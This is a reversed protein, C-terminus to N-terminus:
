DLLQHLHDDITEHMHWAGGGHTCAAQLQNNLTRLTLLEQLVDKGNIHLPVDSNLGLRGKIEPEDEIACCVCYDDVTQRLGHKECNAYHM